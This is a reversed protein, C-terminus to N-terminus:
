PKAFSAARAGRLAAVTRAVTRSLVADMLDPRRSAMRWEEDLIQVVCSPKLDHAVLVLLMSLILSCCHFRIRQGSHAFVQLATAFVDGFADAKAQLVLGLARRCAVAEKGCLQWSEGVGALAEGGAM